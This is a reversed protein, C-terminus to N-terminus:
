SPVATSVCCVRPKVSRLTSKGLLVDNFVQRFIAPDWGSCTLQADLAARQESSRHAARMDVAMSQRVQGLLVSPDLRSPISAAMSSACAETNAPACTTQVITVARVGSPPCQSVSGAGFGTVGYFLGKKERLQLIISDMGGFLATQAAGATVIDLESQVEFGLDIALVVCGSAGKGKGRLRACGTGAVFGPHKVPTLEGRRAPDSLRGLTDHWMRLVGQANVGKLFEYADLIVRGWVAKLAAHMACGM